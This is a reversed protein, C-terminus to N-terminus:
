PFDTGFELCNGQFCGPLPAQTYIVAYTVTLDPRQPCVDLPAIKGREQKREGKEASHLSGQSGTRTLQCVGEGLEACM